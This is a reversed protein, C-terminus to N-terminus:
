KGPRLRLGGWVQYNNDIDDLDEFPLRGEAM